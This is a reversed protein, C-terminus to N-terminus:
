VHVFLGVLVIGLFNMSYSIPILMQVSVKSLGLMALGLEDPLPSAIVLAGLTPTVFRWVRGRFLAKMRRSAKRHFLEKFDTLLSRRAFLFIVLDGLVAGLAGFLGVMVLSHQGAIEALAVTALPITFVSTFFIGSIFSTVLFSQTTSQLLYSLTGMYVLMCAAVVSLGLILIDKQWHKM